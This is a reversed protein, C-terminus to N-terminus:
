QLDEVRVASLEIDEKNVSYVVWLRGAALIANPYQFGAAKHMGPLRPKAQEDHRLKLVRDFSRGDASVSVALLKRKTEDRTPSSVLAVRGAGLPLAVFKSQADPMDTPQPATWSQGGDSSEAIFLRRSGGDDRLLVRITGDAAVFWSPESLKWGASRPAIVVRRWDNLGHEGGIALVPSHESDVGPWIWTTARADQGHGTAAGGDQGHGTTARADQGHERPRLAGAVARPAENSYFDDLALGAPQWCEDSWIFAETALDEWCRGSTLEGEVYRARTCRTALLILQGDRVWLGGCTWRNMGGPTEMAAQPKSWSLGDESTAFRVVQGPSDENMRGNSWAAFFREDFHAIAAHHSYCFEGERALHLTRREAPLEPEALGRALAAPDLISVAPETTEKKKRALRAFGGRRRRRRRGNSGRGGHSIARGRLM